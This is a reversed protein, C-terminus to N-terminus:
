TLDKANGDPKFNFLTREEGSDYTYTSISSIRVEAKIHKNGPRAPDDVKGEYWLTEGADYAAVLRSTDRSQTDQNLRWTGLVDLVEGQGSRAVQLTGSGPIGGLRAEGMSAENTVAEAPQIAKEVTDTM